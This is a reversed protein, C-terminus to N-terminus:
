ETSRPAGSAHAIGDEAGRVYADCCHRVWAAVGDPQGSGYTHILPQYARSMALHGVEPVSLGLPDVGTAMLVIRETARAVVGGGPDFAQLAMLEGHVIAAVVVGPAASDGSSLRLLQDLRNRDTGPRPRGLETPDALDRAALLHLRALVQIPTQHWNAALRVTEGTARLAGQTIPDDVVDPSGGAM